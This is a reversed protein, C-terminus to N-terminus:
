QEIRKANFTHWKEHPIGAVIRIKIVIIIVDELLALTIYKDLCHITNLIHKTNM